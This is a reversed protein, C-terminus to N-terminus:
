DTLNISTIRGSELYYTARRYHYIVRHSNDSRILEDRWEFNSREPMGHVALIAHESMGIELVASAVKQKDQPRILGREVMADLIEPQRLRHYNAGM